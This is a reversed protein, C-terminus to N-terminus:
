LLFFFAVLTLEALHLHYPGQPQVREHVNLLLQLPVPRIHTLPPDEKEYAALQRHLCFNINGVRDLRPDQAGLIAFIQGVSCLYQEVLRKKVQRGKSALVGACIRHAFIQLLPIPDNIHTLDTPVGLDSCFTSWISWNTCDAQQRWSTIGHQM